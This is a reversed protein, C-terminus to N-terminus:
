SRNRASAFAYGGTALGALALAAGALVIVMGTASSASDGPWGGSSPLSAATSTPATADNTLKVSLAPEGSALGIAIATYSTLANKLTVQVVADSLLAAFAAPFAGWGRGALHIERHGYNGLWALVTLVDHTKQGVYPRDLMLSHIAYFYDSGYPTLFSDANATDPRSEGIGRVDCAFFAAEPEAEPLERVLPEDRLEADASHHSVYLVARKADRPPRSFLQDQSLRTVLAHM